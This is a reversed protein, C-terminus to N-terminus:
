PQALCDVICRNLRIKAGFLRKSDPKLWAINRLEIGEDQLNAVTAWGSPRDIWEQNEQTIRQDINEAASTM